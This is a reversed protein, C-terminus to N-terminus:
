EVFTLLTMRWKGNGIDELECIFRKRIQAGFSNQADVWARVRYKGDGLYTVVDESNQSDGFLRGFNASSPSRLKGKVFQQAMVWADAKDGTDPPPLQPPPPPYNFWGWDTLLDDIFTAKLIVDDLEFDYTSREIENVVVHRTRRGEGYIRQVEYLEMDERLEPTRQPTPVEPRTSKTPSPTSRNTPSPKSYTTTGTQECRCGMMLGFLLFSFFVVVCCLLIMTTCPLVIKKM